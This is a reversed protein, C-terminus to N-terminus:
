YELTPAQVPKVETAATVAGTLAALMGLMFNRRKPSHNRETTPESM